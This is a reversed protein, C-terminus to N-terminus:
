RRMQLGASASITPSLRGHVDQHVLQPALQRYVFRTSSATEARRRPVEGDRWLRVLSEPPLGTPGVERSAACSLHATRLAGSARRSAFAPRTVWGASLLLSVVRSPM